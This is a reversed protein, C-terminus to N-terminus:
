VKKSAMELKATTEERQKIVERRTNRLGEVTEELETVRQQLSPRQPAENHDKPEAPTSVDPKPHAQSAKPAKRGTESRTRSTPTSQLFFSQELGVFWCVLL